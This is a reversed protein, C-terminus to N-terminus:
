SNRFMMKKIKGRGPSDNENWSKEKKVENGGEQTFRGSLIHPSLTAELAKRKSILLKSIDRAVREVLDKPNNRKIEFQSKKENYIIRRQRASPQAPPWLCNGKGPGGLLCVQGWFSRGHWGLVRVLNGPTKNQGGQPAKHLLSYGGVCNTMRELSRQRNYTWHQWMFLVAILKESM